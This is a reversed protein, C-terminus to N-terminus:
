VNDLINIKIIINDSIMKTRFNPELIIHIYQLTNM